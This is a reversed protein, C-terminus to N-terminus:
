LSSPVYYAGPIHGTDYTARNDYTPPNMPNFGTDLIVVKRGWNDIYGNDIWQKLKEPSLLQQVDNAYLSLPIALFAISCFTIVSMALKKM